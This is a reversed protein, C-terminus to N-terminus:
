QDAKPPVSLQGTQILHVAYNPNKYAYVVQAVNFALFVIAVISAPLLKPLAAIILSNGGLSVIAQLVLEAKASIQKFM